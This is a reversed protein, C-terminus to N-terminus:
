RASSARTRVGRGRPADGLRPRTLRGVQHDPMVAEPLDGVELSRAVPVAQAGLEGCICLSERVASGLRDVVEDIGLRRAADDAFLAAVGCTADGGVNEHAASLSDDRAARFDGHHHHSFVELRGVEVGERHM